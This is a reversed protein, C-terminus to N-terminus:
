YFFSLRGYITRETSFRPASTRESTLFSQDQFSFDTDFLNRVDIRFSGRRAAFRRGVSVEVDVFTDSEEGYAVPPSQDVKQHVLTVTSQAFYGDPRTHRWRVPLTFTKTQSATEYYNTNQLRPNSLLERDLLEYSLSASVADTDSPLWYLYSRVALEDQNEDEVTIDDTSSTTLTIPVKLSRLRSEVGLSLGPEVDWDLAISFSQFRAGFNDDFLHNFGAIVIPELTVDSSSGRGMGGVFATRLDVTPSMRWWLGLKPGTFDLDQVSGDDDAFTYSAGLTLDLSDNYAFDSHYYGNVFSAKKNGSDRTCNGSPLPCTPENHELERTIRTTSRYGEIGITHNAGRGLLM